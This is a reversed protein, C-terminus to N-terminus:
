GTVRDLHGRGPPQGHHGRAQQRFAVWTFPQVAGAPTMHEERAHAVLVWGGGLQVALERPGYRDVPLGSCYGPGDPAFCGIVVVAGATTAANLTYLYRRRDESGTLFHFVARDHWVQYRRQPRWARVDAVIWRVRPAHPGLLRRAHQLGAAFYRAGDRRFVRPRAPCRGAARCRRGCGARQRWRLGGAAELMRWSMVPEVQFWSRTRAGQAYADDWHRAPDPMSAVM